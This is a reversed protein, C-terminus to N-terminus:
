KWPLLFSLVTMTLGAGAGILVSVLWRPMGWRPTFRRTMMLGGFSWGVFWALGMAFHFPLWRALLLGFVQGCIVAVGPWLKWWSFRLITLETTV